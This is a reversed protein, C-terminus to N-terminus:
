NKLTWELIRGDIDRDELDKKGEAKGVLSQLCREERGETGCAGGIGNVKIRDGSECKTFSRVAYNVCAMERFIM